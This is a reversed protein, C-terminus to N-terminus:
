RTRVSPSGNSERVYVDNLRFHKRSADHSKEAHGINVSEPQGQIGHHSM